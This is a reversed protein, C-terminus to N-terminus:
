LVTVTAVVTGDEKVATEVKILQLAQPAQAEENANNNVNAVSQSPEHPLVPLEENMANMMAYSSARARPTSDLSKNEESKVQTTQMADLDVSQGLNAEDREELVELNSVGEKEKEKRASRDTEHDAASMLLSKTHPSEQYSRPIEQETVKEFLVHDSGCSPCPINDLRKLPVTYYEEDNKSKTSIHELACNECVYNRCCTSRYIDKFYIFCIPCYYKFVDKDKGLPTSPMGAPVPLPLVQKQSRDAQSHLQSVSDTRLPLPPVHTTQVSACGGM